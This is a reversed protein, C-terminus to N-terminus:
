TNGGERLKREAEVMTSILEKPLLVKGDPEVQANEVLLNTMAEPDHRITAYRRMLEDDTVPLGRYPRTGIAAKLQKRREFLRKAAEDVILEWRSALDAPIVNGKKITTPV